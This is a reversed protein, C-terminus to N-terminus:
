KFLIFIKSTNQEMFIEHAAQSLFTQTDVIDTDPWGLEGLLLPLGLGAAEEAVTELRGPDPPHDSM